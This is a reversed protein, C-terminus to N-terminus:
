SAKIAKNVILPKDKHFSEVVVGNSGFASLKIYLTSKAKSKSICDTKFEWKRNLNDDKLNKGFGSVLEVESLGRIITIAQEIDMGLTKLASLVSGEGQYTRELFLFTGEKIRKMMEDVSKPENTSM